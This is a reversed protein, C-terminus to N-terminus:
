PQQPSNPAYQQVLARLDREKFPKVLYANAGVLRAKIRDLIGDRASIVIIPLHQFQPHARVQRIVDYGDLRPLGVDVIALAPAPVEGRVLAGLAEVPDEYATVEYGARRLAVEIIKRVTPSDDILLVQPRPPLSQFTQM